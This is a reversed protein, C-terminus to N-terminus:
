RGVINKGGPVYATPGSLGEASPAAGHRLANETADVPKQKERQDAEYFDKRKRVLVANEGTTKDVTRKMVSGEAAATLQQADETSVVDWDDEVTMQRVRGPKDNIWRYEFDKDKISDPVHLKLNREAGMGHRRRRVSANEEQRAPRSM